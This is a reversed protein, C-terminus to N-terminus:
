LKLILRGGWRIQDANLLQGIDVISSATSSFIEIAVDDFANWRLALTHNSDLQSNLVINAEPILELRPAVQINAGIGIGWITGVGSWAVKPNINFALKSNAEWGVPTEAIFLWRRHKKQELNRGLQHTICEM